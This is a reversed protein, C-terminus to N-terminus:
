FSDLVELLFFSYNFGCGKKARSSQQADREDTFSVLWMSLLDLLGSGINPFTFLFVMRDKMLSFTTRLIDAKSYKRGKSQNHM